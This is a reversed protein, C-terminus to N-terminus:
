SIGDTQRDHCNGWRRRGEEEGGERDRIRRKRKM